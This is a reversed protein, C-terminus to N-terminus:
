QIYEKNRRTRNKPIKPEVFNLLENRFGRIMELNKITENKAEEAYKM